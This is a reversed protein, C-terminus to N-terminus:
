ELTLSARAGGAEDAAIVLVGRPGRADALPLTVPGERGTMSSLARATPDPTLGQAALAGLCRDAAVAPSVAFRLLAFGGGGPREVSMAVTAGQPAEVGGPLKSRADRAPPPAEILKYRTGGLGDAHAMVARRTGDPATWLLAGGGLEDTQLLYPAERAAAEARAKEEYRALVMAPANKTSCDSVLTPQGDVLVTSHVADSDPIPRLGSPGRSTTTLAGVRVGTVALGFAVLAVTLVTGLLLQPGRM